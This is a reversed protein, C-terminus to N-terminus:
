LHSLIDLVNEQGVKLNWCHIGLKSASVTNEMTDDIFFTEDAKLGNEKLVFEYINSNPKRMKMEQSLYFKEFCNKFRQFREMGMNEVVKEIHLDNTNSLLFLRYKNELKMKEIFDLREEPFDLIMSNWAYIIQEKSASNFIQQLSNVFEDSEMFGMEFNKLIPELELPMRNLGFKAMERFPAEKDLNIFIDGFDFIINKIM